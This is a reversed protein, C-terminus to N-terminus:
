SSRLSADAQNLWIISPIRVDPLILGELGVVNGGRQPQHV